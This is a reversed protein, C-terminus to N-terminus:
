REGAGESDALWRAIRDRVRRARGPDEGGTSVTIVLGEGRYVVPVDFSGEEPVDAVNCLLGTAEAERAVLMNVPRQEAAAFVLAVGPLDGTEFFRKEWHIRGEDAWAQLQPTAEPSILRVAARAELLGRVKREAVEGGGVVVVPAAEFRTLVIPYM